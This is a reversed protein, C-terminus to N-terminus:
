TQIVITMEQCTKMPSYAGERETREGRHTRTTKKKISVLSEDAETIMVPVPRNDNQSWSPCLISRRTSVPYRSVTLRFSDQMRQLSMPLVITNEEHYVNMVPVPRNDNKDHHACSRDDGPLM